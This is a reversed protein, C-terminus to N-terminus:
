YGSRLQRALKATADKHDIGKFTFSYQYQDSRATYQNHVRKGWSNDGGVGAQVADIHVFVGDTDLPVDNLQTDPKLRNSDTASMWTDDSAEFVEMPHSLASFGFPSKKASAFILGQGTEDTVSFWHTDTKYANEQPRLYPVYQENVNSQYLGTYASWNRDVYNEHPGRGLWSLQQYQNPLSMRMGVRPPMRVGEARKFSMDVNVAGNGFIRYLLNINGMQEGKADTLNYATNIVVENSKESKVEFSNLARTHGVGKQRSERWRFDWTNPAFGYDNDTMARWFSPTLGTQILSRNRYRYDTIDGTVRNFDITFERSSIQLRDDEDLLKIKSGKISTNLDKYFPLEFQESAFIHDGALLSNAIRTNASKRLELNLHYIAGSRISGPRVKGLDVKVKAGPAANLDQIVGTKIAVGDEILSWHLDYESLNTFNHHNILQVIGASLDYAEFAVPQYAKKVEWFAPKPTRDPFLVGNHSFNGSSPVSENPEGGPGYDGGQGYYHRGESDTEGLGQDVWDWIFGGQLVPHRYITEWYAQGNGLSNGMSHWYEMMIWSLNGFAQAYEELKWPSPYFAGLIDSSKGFERKKLESFNGGETHTDDAYQFLRSPDRAKAWEYIAVMNVGPGTENGPSWFVVSPHNKDREVMRITRDLMQKAWELKRAPAFDPNYRYLHTELNAEDVVYLGYQDAMEYFGPPQPYHSTRVANFNGAKLLKIDKLLTKDDVVYGNEPHFEHMNVGRFKVAKGNILVLGHRLEVSRFGLKRHIIELIDGQDNLLTMTLNYLYPKEASWSQINKIIAKSTVYGTGQKITVPLDETTILGKGDRIEYRIIAKADDTRAFSRIEVDLDLVGDRYNNQLGTAAFYDRIHTQHRSYLSVDRFIGSMSWSDQNELWSGDNWRMVEVALTNSGTRVYDTLDFEAPTRSGQNYGIRQGNVWLTMASSVADFQVYIRRGQWDTPLDFKKVYSGVHNQDDVPVVFPEAHFPYEINAYIPYGYGQREWVSPVPIDDWDSADFDPKFFHGPRSGPNPSWKFKWDGNLSQFYPSAEVDGLIANQRNSFGFFHARPAEKNESIVSIDQWPQLVNSDNNDGSAVAWFSKAILCAFVFARLWSIANPKYFSFM